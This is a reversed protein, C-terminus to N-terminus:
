LVWQLLYLTIMNEFPPLDDARSTERKCTFNVKLLFLSFKSLRFFVSQSGNPRWAFGGAHLLGLM